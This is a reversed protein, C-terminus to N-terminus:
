SRQLSSSVSSLCAPTRTVGADVVQYIHGPCHVLLICMAAIFPATPGIAKIYQYWSFGLLAVTYGAGQLGTVKEALFIVCFVFM